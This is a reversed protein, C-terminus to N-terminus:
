RQFLTDMMIFAFLRTKSHPAALKEMLLDFAARVNSPTSRVLTKLYTLAEEPLVDPTGKRSSTAKTILERLQEFAVRDDM